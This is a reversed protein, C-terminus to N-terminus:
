TVIFELYCRDDFSNYQSHLGKTSLFDRCLNPDQRLIEQLYAETASFDEKIDPYGDSTLTVRDGRKVSISKILSMPIDEGNIVAYGYPTEAQNAFCTSQIIWPLIVERGLDQDQHEDPGAAIALVLSRMQSLVEDSRKPQYYNRGNVRAQCDGILFIKGLHRSYLAMVAQLGFEKRDLDFAIEQYFQNIVANIRALIEELDAAKPLQSIAEKILRSALKGTTQGQYTFTSKSSVGDIVAVYDDRIIYDDECRAQDPHKGQIFEKILQVM